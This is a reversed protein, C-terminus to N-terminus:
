PDQDASGPLSAAKLHEFFVILAAAGVVVTLTALFFWGMDFLYAYLLDVNMFKAGEL